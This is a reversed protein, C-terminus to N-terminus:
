MTTTRTWITLDDQNLWMNPIQVQAVLKFHQKLLEQFARTSSLGVDSGVLNEQREGVYVVDQGGAITYAHLCDADWVAQSSAGCDDTCFQLNDVPDPDNPWIMLLAHTSALDLSGKLVDICSGPLIDATYAHDFFANEGALHPPNLDYPIVTVGYLRLIAAWYGSGAGMYVIPKHLNQIAKIAAENPIAFAVHLQIPRTILHDMDQLITLSYGRNRYNVGILQLLQDAPITPIEYLTSLLNHDRPHVSEYSDYLKLLTAPIVGTLRRHLEYLWNAQPKQLLLAPEMGLDEMLMALTGQRNTVVDQSTDNYYVQTLNTAIYRLFARARNLEVDCSQCALPCYQDMYAKYEENGCQGQVKWFVCMDKDNRCEVIQRMFVPRQMWYAYM